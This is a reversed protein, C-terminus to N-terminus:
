RRGSVNRWNAQGVDGMNVRQDKAGIQVLGARQVIGKSAGLLAVTAEVM